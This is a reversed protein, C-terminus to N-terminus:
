EKENAADIEKELYRFNDILDRAFSLKESVGEELGGMDLTEDITRHLIERFMLEAYRTGEKIKKADKSLEHEWYSMGM